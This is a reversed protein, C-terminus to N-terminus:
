PAGRSRRAPRDDRRTGFLAAYAAPVIALPLAGFALIMLVTAAPLGLVFPGPRNGLLLIGITGSELSLALTLAVWGVRRDLSPRDAGVLILAAPVLPSVLAFIWTGVGGGLLLALLLLPSAAGLAIRALRAM